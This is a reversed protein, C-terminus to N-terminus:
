SQAVTSPQDDLCRIEHSKFERLADLYMTGYEMAPEITTGEWWENFSTLFIMYPIETKLQPLCSMANLQALFGEKGGTLSKHGRFDQYSPMVHPFFTTAKSWQEFIPWAERRMYSFASEGERVNVDEFMNYATYAEFVSEGSDARIGNTATLPDNSLDIFTEDAIIFLKMDLAKEVREIHKRNFNDFIRTVYIPVVPRGDELKLYQEHSFYTAKLHKFDAIFREMIEPEDFNIRPHVKGNLEALRGMSEYLICFKIQDLNKAQLLGNELHKSAFHDKGGWSVVFADVAGSAWEIHKEAISPDDTGYLGLEPTGAYGHRSWDGQTYWTYYYAMILPDNATGKQPQDNAAKTQSGFRLSLGSSTSGSVEPMTETRRPVSVASPQDDLAQPKIRETQVCRREHSKFERLADLYTTGYETAPEITTGEWWENFSTLFMMYPIETKPQPLCSMANLQALFGEKGGTLPKHGRFDQYSPMVHPFFTTAKSWQEFIPWAERRMYSLASEGERVNVDEFMNYATYAEFVSEGSDARIGNTATLPDNSLDIFTEDAIIFLKMDLEKEVREIHKRNFNDFIRTVYIPVVPRGDELKLYQEHSFYTAKLHKFDAIFREMIEPEDFNIRPHVKGNLEALRGMSEYLICFKIQDLNKAQLLGNELHKSAFHDKGGWSVVFADVAGSAWEIHKEAISPDDTGYLGLEPTGAYGHRSWDGQTYWTYYYAMILPDNATGKQPQDNAAKTQSGFRLSLGSSTSGLMAATMDTRRPASVSSLFQESIIKHFLTAGMRLELSVAGIVAVIAIVRKWRSSWRGAGARQTNIDVM